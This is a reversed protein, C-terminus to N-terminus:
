AGPRVFVLTGATSTALGIAGEAALARLARHAGSKSSLGLRDALARYSGELQGGAEKLKAMVDNLPKARKRGRPAPAVALAGAAPVDSLAAVVILSTAAGIEMFVVALLTLWPSLKAPEIEGGAARIYSSLVEAVPDAASVGGRESMVRQADRVTAALETRREARKAETRRDARPAAALTKLEIAAAEASAKALQYADRDSAREATASDKATGIFGLSSTTAYIVCCCGLLTAVVGSGIRWNRFANWAALFSCPGMCAGALSGAAFILAAAESRALGLSYGHSINQAASVGIFLFAGFYAICRVMPGSFKAYM